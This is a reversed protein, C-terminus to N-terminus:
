NEHHHPHAVTSPDIPDVQEGESIVGERELVKRETNSIDSLGYWTIMGMGLFASICSFVLAVIGRATFGAPLDPAQANQGTLDLFDDDNAAANGKWPMGVADCTDKHSQPLTMDKLKEPAEVFVMALGQTLHWDIHCHFFWAGPNDAVFRLVMNGNPPVWATDRRMPYEAFDSDTHNDPNYPVFGEYEPSREVVQFEHGHLHFPHFGADNNNVVIEVVDLHNVVVTHTYEGYVLENTALDGASLATMLTPVKPATYTINNFFAYNVGNDLNTMVVELEIRKSVNTYLPKHDYPVLDMDDFYEIDVSSEWPIDAEPHDADSNYELWNTMNMGLDSPIVDFLNEDFISVMPYNKDTTDKTKLLFTYRQAVALYLIDTEAPETYVGDIEVVTVNHDEIYFYQAGLAGINMLHVLYTTNPKVSVSLKQTDNFLMAQPVPEAGTPNYLTLFEEKNLYDILDHYWDSMTLVLEEDYDYPFNKDHVIFPARYGDPYQGDVHSHYWYTGNQDVTFNYTFKGGPPVPCQTVGVPGDMYNTGNQYMGHFHISANRDPMDNYMNVVLRDGKDVEIRPLPWQGNIGIVKREYLGDPNATTWNVHFDYEVTKATAVAALAMPVLSLLKM